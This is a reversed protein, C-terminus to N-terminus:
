RQEKLAAALWYGFLPSACAIVIIGGAWVSVAVPDDDPMLAAFTSAFLAVLTIAGYLRSKGRASM